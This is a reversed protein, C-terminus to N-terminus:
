GFDLYDVSTGLYSTGTLAFDVREKTEASAVTVDKPYPAFGEATAEIVYEGPVLGKILYIGDSGTFITDTSQNFTIHAAEIPLTTSANTVMGTIEGHLIIEGPKCSFLSVTIIILIHIKIFKM